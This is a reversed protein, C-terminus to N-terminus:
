EAVLFVDPAQYRLGDPTAELQAHRCDGGPQRLLGDGTVYLQTVLPAHGPATIRLHFHRPRPAYAGPVLTRVQYAGDAGSIVTGRLDVAAEPYDDYHGSGPPHYDGRGDTQWIEIRAGAIPPTGSAASLIRGSLLLPDGPQGHRNLDDVLPTGVVYFPGLSDPRTPVCSQGQGRTAGACGALAVALAVGAARLGRRRKEAM